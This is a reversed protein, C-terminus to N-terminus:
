IQALAASAELAEVHAHDLTVSGDANYNVSFVQEYGGPGLIWFVSARSRRLGIVKRMANLEAGKLENEKSSPTAQHRKMFEILKDVEKRTKKVECM